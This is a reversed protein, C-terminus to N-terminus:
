ICAFPERPSVASPNANAENKGLTIWGGTATNPFVSKEKNPLNTTYYLHLIFECTFKFTHLRFGICSM